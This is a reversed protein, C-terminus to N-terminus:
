RWGNGTPCWRIPCCRVHLERRPLLATGSACLRRARGAHTHCLPEAVVRGDTPPTNAKGIQAFTARCFLLFFFVLLLVGLHASYRGLLSAVAQRDACFRWAWALLKALAHGFSRAFAGELGQVGSEQETYENNNM